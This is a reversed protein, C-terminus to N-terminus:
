SLFHLLIKNTDKTIIQFINIIEVLKYIKFAEGASFQFVYLAQFGYYCLCLWSLFLKTIFSSKLELYKKTLADHKAWSHM